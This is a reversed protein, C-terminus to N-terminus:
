REVFLRAEQQYQQKGPQLQEEVYRKYVKGIKLSKGKILISNQEYGEILSTNVICSRSIRLFNPKPLKMEAEKLSLRIIYMKKTSHLKVYNELSEIYLIQDAPIQTEIGDIMCNFFSPRAQENEVILQKVENTQAPTQLYLFIVYVGLGTLTLIWFSLIQPLTDTQQFGYSLILHMNISSFTMFLITWSFYARKKGKLYLRQFLIRNHFVIWGFLLLLLLYPSFRSFDSRQKWAFRDPIYHVMFMAFLALSNRLLVHQWGAKLKMRCFYCM